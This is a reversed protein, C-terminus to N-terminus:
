VESSDPLFEPFCYRLSGEEDVDVRVYGRSSLDNLLQEAEQISLSTHLAAVTPTLVGRQSKALRLLEKEREGKLEATDRQGLKKNGKKSREIYSLVGRVLPIAGVIVLPFLWIWSGSNLYLFGFLLTFAGGSVLEDRGGHDKGAM